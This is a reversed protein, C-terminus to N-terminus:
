KALDGGPRNSPLKAEAAAMKAEGDHQARQAELEFEMAMRERALQFEAAAKERALELEASAKERALQLETAAKEQAFQADMEAQAQRMQLEAAAKQQEFEAKQAEMQLKAQMAQTEAQAKIAEPDPPPPPKPANDDPETLFDDVSRIGLANYLKATLNYVNRETIMGGYPTMAIREAVELATQMAAAQERKSGVGLGVSIALDMDPSWASPNMEVFKNRLKIIRERPQHKVVLKLVKKFLTKVGTEAFIRAIMELRETRRNEEIAEQTATTQKKLTDRDLGNGMRSVGTRAEQQQDAWELASLVKDGVFPVAFSGLADQRVRIIAGPATTQLDELTTGDDREAGEPLVPRPNNHLYLNDLMQRTLVSSIRQLDVVQDALSLGYVKHPMPVPCIIAFPHDDAEENLLITTDCRIIVRRESKGKGEIDVLPFEHCVQVLEQSKDTEYTRGAGWEEDRYRSMERTDDISNSSWTPLAAVAEPDFGMDVLDSRTKRTRHAIYPAEEANRALPSILFEESPVCEIKVRGDTQYEEFKANYTGDGNDTLELDSIEDADAKAMLDEADAASIGNHSVYKEGSTDNWWVKVIGLKELLAAKFWDHFIQFGANDCHLIYNVFETAQEAQEADEPGRPQFGVTEDSSVFPKLLAALANDVVEAVVHDVVRSRGEQEDGFPLGYYYDIAKAQEAAIESTYYGVAQREQAALLAALESDTMPTPKAM